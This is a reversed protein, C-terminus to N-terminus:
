IKCYFPIRASRHAKQGVLFKASQPARSPAGGWSGAVKQLLDILVKSCKTQAFMNLGLFPVGNRPKDNKM